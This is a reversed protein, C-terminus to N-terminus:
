SRAFDFLFRASNWALISPTSCFIRACMAVTSIVFRWSAV